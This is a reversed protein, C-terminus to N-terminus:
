RIPRAGRKHTYTGPLLREFNQRIKGYCECTTEELGARDAITIAGMRQRILGATQLTRTILSVTSRQVGLTEALFEHTLPLREQDMRDHM